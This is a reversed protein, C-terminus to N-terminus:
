KKGAIAYVCGQKGASINSQKQVNHPHSAPLKQLLGNEAERLNNSGTLAFQVHCNDYSSDYNWIREKPNDNRSAGVRYQNPDDAVTKVLHDMGVEQFNCGSAGGFIQRLSAM